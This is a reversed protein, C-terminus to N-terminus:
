NSDVITAVKTEAAPDLVLTIDYTGGTVVRFNHWEGGLTTADVIKGDDISQGEVSSLMSWDLQLGGWVGNELFIFEKDQALVVDNWTWTYVHGDVVPAHVEYGTGDSWDETVGDIDYADGILGMQTLSYDVLAVGTKIKTEKWSGDSADFKLRVTFIGDDHHPINEGFYGIDNVKTDWADQYSAVGLHTYTAMSGSNVVEWGDNFRYKYGSAGSLTLDTIEFVASDTSASKQPLDTGSAWQAETADGIMQAEVKMIRLDLTNMDAYVYYLGGDTIQIADAEVELTGTIFDTNIDSDAIDAGATVAGGGVVGYNMATDEDVYTFELTSAPGIYMLKAFIDEMNEAGGSKDPNLIARSMKAKAEVSLAAITNSGYVYLGSLKPVLVIPEPEPDECSVFFAPIILLLMLKALISNKM